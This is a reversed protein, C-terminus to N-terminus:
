SLLIETNGQVILKAEKVRLLAFEIEIVWRNTTM